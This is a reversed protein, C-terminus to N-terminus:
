MYMELMNAISTAAEESDGDKKYSVLANNISDKLNQKSEEVGSLGPSGAMNVSIEVGRLFEENTIKKNQWKQLLGQNDNTTMPWELKAQKMKRKRHKKVVDRDQPTGECEPFLQTDLKGKPKQFKGCGKNIRYIRM